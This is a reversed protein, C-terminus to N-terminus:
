GSYAPPPLSKAACIMDRTAVDHPSAAVASPFEMGYSWWDMGVDHGGGRAVDPAVYEHTGVFSSSQAHVPEAAIGMMHLCELALLVEAAYFRAFAVPFRHGPM